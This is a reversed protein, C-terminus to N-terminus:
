IPPNTIINMLRDVVCLSGIKLATYFLRLFPLFLPCSPPFYIPGVFLDCILTDYNVWGRLVRNLSLPFNADHSDRKFQILPTIISFHIWPYHLDGICQLRLDSCAVSM